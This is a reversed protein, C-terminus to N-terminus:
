QNTYRSTPEVAQDYLKMLEDVMPLADAPEGAFVDYLADELLALEDPSLLTLLDTLSQNIWDVIIGEYKEMYDKCSRRYPQVMGFCMSIEEVTEQYETDNLSHYKEIFHRAKELDERGNKKVYRSLYKTICGTFYDARIFAMLDWHQLGDTQYHTGGVQRDNANTM